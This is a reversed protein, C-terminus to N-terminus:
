LRPILMMRQMYTNQPQERQEVKALRALFPDEPAEKPTYSAKAETVYSPRARSAAPPTDVPATFGANKTIQYADEMSIGDDAKGDHVRQAGSTMEQQWPPVFKVQPTRACPTLRELRLQSTMARGDSPAGHLAVVCPPARPASAKLLARVGEGKPKGSEFFSMM